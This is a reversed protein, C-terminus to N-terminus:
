SGGLRTISGVLVARVASRYALERALQQGVHTSEPVQALQMAASLQQRPVTSVLSSQNLEATALERVADGLSPDDAPGDFDAM